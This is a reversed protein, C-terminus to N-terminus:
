LTRDPPRPKQVTGNSTINVQTVGRPGDALSGKVSSSMEGGDNILMKHPPIEFRHM